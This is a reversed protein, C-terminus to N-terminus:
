LYPNEIPNVSVITLGLSEIVGSKEILEYEAIYQATFIVGDDIGEVKVKFGNEALARYNDLALSPRVTGLTFSYWGSQSTFKEDDETKMSGNLLDVKVSSDGNGWLGLEMLSSKTLGIDRSPLTEPMASTVTVKVKRDGNSILLVSSPMYRNSSATAGDDEGGKWFATEAM